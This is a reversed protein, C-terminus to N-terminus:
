VPGGNEVGQNAFHKAIIPVVEPHSQAVCMITEGLIVLSLKELAEPTMVVEMRGYAPYGCAAILQRIKHVM